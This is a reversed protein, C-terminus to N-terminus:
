TARGLWFQHGYGNSRVPIMRLEVDGFGAAIFARWVDDLWYANTRMTTHTRGARLARRSGRLALEAQLRRWPRPAPAGQVPVHVMATAGARLVRRMEAIYADLVAPSELHQMVHVSFVADAEGDGLPIEAGSVQCFAVRDGTVLRARAMMDTSVDLGTVRDFRAELQRTIRGVGCGIEVCHGSLQPEYHTWHRAFDEWDSTGAAYFEEETWQDRKDPWSLVNYLLDPGQAIARWDQVAADPHPMETM